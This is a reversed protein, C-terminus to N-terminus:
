GNELVSRESDLDRVTADHETFKDPYRKRLKAINTKAIDEFSYGATNCILSMYWMIDGLEEKLNIMDIETGYYIHKKFIDSLEGAETCIGIAGHMMNITDKNLLRARIAPMDGSATRASEKKYKKMNM